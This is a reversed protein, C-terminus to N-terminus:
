RTEVGCRAAVPQVAYRPSFRDKFALLYREFCLYSLKAVFYVIACTAVAGLYSFWPWQWTALSTARFYFIVPHYVYIGYAYKGVNTLRKWCLFRQPWVPQRDTLVAYLVLGAFLIALIPLGATQIAAENRGDILAPFCVLGAGCIWPLANVLPGPVTYRRVVIAVVAGLLLGDMRSITAWAVATSAGHVAVWWWRGAIVAAETALLVPLLIRARLVRVCLPWVLYFQEEVALTWFHGLVTRGVNGKWLFLWNTLYCFYVWRDADLPMAQPSVWRPFFTFGFLLFAYALPFIRLARRAYFSSFYNEAPRTDLLIGTILFGSLVFFLDVGAWGFSFARCLFRTLPGIIMLSSSLHYFMVAIIALGRVGDLSSLKRSSWPVM